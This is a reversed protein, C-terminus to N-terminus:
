ALVKLILIFEFNLIFKLIILTSRTGPLQMVTLSNLFYVQKFKYLSHMSM